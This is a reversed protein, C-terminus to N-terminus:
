SQRRRLRDRIAVLRGRLGPPLRRLASRALSRRHPQQQHQRLQQEARRARTRWQDRNRSTDRQNKLMVAIADLAVELLESDTSDDPQRTPPLHEPPILEQLDGVVDYGAAELESVARRSRDRLEDARAPSVGLREGGLPVLVSHGLYDRVWGPVEGPGRIEESIRPNVRRLLEAEVAGLSENARGVRTDCSEPDIGCLTAFREWLLGPPSGAPPVTVVHVHEPPLGAGWRSLADVVDLTRWGFHTHPAATVPEPDYEALPTSFRFKLQEQWLAPVQRVYDRATFVIHVEAPELDAIAQAAQERTAAAYFEHSIVVTGDFAKTQAVIRDWSTRAMEHPIRTERIVNTSWVRDLWRDGPFLVGQERLQPRNGWMVRQLFTTGTKPAGIHFFVRQAM